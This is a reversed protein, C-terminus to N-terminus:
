KKHNKLWLNSWSIFSQFSLMVAFVFGHVGDSLGKRIVMNNMFKGLPFTLLRFGILNDKKEKKLEDAHIKSRDNISSIFEKLTEHPYHMLTGSLRCVDREIDWYEHISRKWLGANKKGLRLLWQGGWEGHNLSKDMFVDSRYVYYGQYNSLKVAKLISKALQPTVYEDADIFLIWETKAKKIAFNRQKAYDNNLKHKYIKAGLKQAIKVTNDQSFDDIIIIEQSFYVSKICRKINDQEDKTLIIVTIDNKQKM